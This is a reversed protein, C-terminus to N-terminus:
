HMSSGVESSLFGMNGDLGDCRCIARVVSGGAELFVEPVSGCGLQESDSCCGRSGAEARLRPDRPKGTCSSARDPCLHLGSARLSAEAESYGLVELLTPGHGLQVPVPSNDSPRQQWSPWPHSVSDPPSVSYIDSGDGDSGGV